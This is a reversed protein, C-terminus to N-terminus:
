FIEWTESPSLLSDRERDSPWRQPCLDHRREPDHQPPPRHRDNHPKQFCLGTRNPGSTRRKLYFYLDTHYCVLLIFILHCFFCFPSSRSPFSVFLSTSESDLASTAEDLLRSSTLENPTLNSRFHVYLIKPRRLLARAIAIRQKQGGSLM